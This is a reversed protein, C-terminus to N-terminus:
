RLFPSGFMSGFLQTRGVIYRLTEKHYMILHKVLHRRLESDYKTLELSNTQQLQNYINDVERAIGIDSLQNSALTHLQLEKHHLQIIREFCKTTAATDSAADHANSFGEGFLLNHMDILKLRKPGHSEAGHYRGFSTSLLMSSLQATCIVEKSFLVTLYKKRLEDNEVHKCIFNALIRVDYNANHAVILSVSDILEFINELATLPEIGNECLFETTLGNIASAEAPIVLTPGHNVYINKAITSVISNIYEGTSPALEVSLISGSFSLMEAFAGSSALSIYDRKASPNYGSAQSRPKIGNSYITQLTLENSLLGTTETDFILINRHM